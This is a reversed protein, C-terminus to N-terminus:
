SGAARGLQAVSGYQACRRTTLQGEREPLMKDFSCFWPPSPLRWEGSQESPWYKEGYWEAAIYAAYIPVAVPWFIGCVIPAIRAPEGFENRVKLKICAWKLGFVAAAAILIYLIFWIM